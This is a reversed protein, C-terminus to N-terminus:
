FHYSLGLSYISMYGILVNCNTQFKYMLDAALCDNIRYQIGVGARFGVSRETSKNPWITQTIAWSGGNKTKTSFLGVGILGKLEFCQSLPYFGLGDLYINQSMFTLDDDWTENMLKTYGLEIGLKDWRYGAFLSVGPVGYITYMNEQVSLGIFCKDCITDSQMDDAHASSFVSILIFMLIYHMKLKVNIKM